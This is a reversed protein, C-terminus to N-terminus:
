IRRNFLKNIIKNPNKRCDFVSYIIVDNNKMKYYIAFPFKSSLARYYGFYKIHIEAYFMLSDIDSYLSDLFYDGLGITQKEYFLFGNELDQEAIDLITIQM